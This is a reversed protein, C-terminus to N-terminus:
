LDGARDPRAPPQPEDGVPEGGPEPVPPVADDGERIPAEPEEGGPEEDGPLREVGGGPLPVGEVCVSEPAPVAGPRRRGIMSSLVAVDELRFARALVLYTGGGLAVIALVVILQAWFGRAFFDESLRWLGWSVGALAAGCVSMKAISGMLARGGMGDIQRRMLYVLALFNWTAVISTALTIGAVGLPKYLLWDLLANLALNFLSVWMPLWPRQLSQFGRNLIINGNAFIMGVSFLALATSVSATDKASFIGHEYILSVFPQPLAIFWIAFPLTIFFVQRVAGSLTDRFGGLDDLAAFRAMSPFLVTGIAIAFVGQPLQYLRFSYYLEAPAQESVLAAFAQGVLANLNLIGLATTVPIMLWLTRKLAPDKLDLRLRYRYELKRLPIVLLGLEAVTGVVNGWVLAWIGIRPALFILFVIIVVNWVISIVAPMTFKEYSYLVGIVVGATCMLIVTPMLAETMLVMLRFYGYNDIFDGYVLKILFPAVAMFLLVIVGIAIAVLTIMSSALRYAREKEDKLLLRTFVPVFAASIAADALLARILNPFIAINTYASIEGTTGYFAATLMERVLGILRSAATAGAVMAAMWALRKARETM